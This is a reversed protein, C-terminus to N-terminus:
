DDEKILVQTLYEVLICQEDNEEQTGILDDIYKVDEDVLNNIGKKNIIQYIIKMMKM